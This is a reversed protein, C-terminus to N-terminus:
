KSGGKAAKTPVAKAAEELEAETMDLAQELTFEPDTRRRLLFVMQPVIDADDIVDRIEATPNAIAERVLDRLERRERWTLDEITWFRGDVAISGDPRGNDKEAM